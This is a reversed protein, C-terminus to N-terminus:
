GNNSRNRTDNVDVSRDTTEEVQVDTRKVTDRVTEQRETINKGVVVEEVVHAQKAVVPVEAMETVEITGEKFAAPANEVARDVSRREVTVNEERLTVSKEVPVEKITTRVNAGGREVTRKGVALHEEIVPLVTEGENAARTVGSVHAATEGAARSPLPQHTQTTETTTTEQGSMEIQGDHLIGRVVIRGDRLAFDQAPIRKKRDVLVSDVMERDTDILIETVTGISNGAQDVVTWGMCDQGSNVLDYEDQQSYYVIAM